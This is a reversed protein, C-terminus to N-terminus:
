VSIYKKILIIKHCQLNHTMYLIDFLSYKGVIIIVIIIFYVIISVYM